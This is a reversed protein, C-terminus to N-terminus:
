SKGEADVRSRAQTVAHVTGSLAGGIGKPPADFQFFRGASFIARAGPIKKVCLGPVRTRIVDPLRPIRQWELSRTGAADFDTQL